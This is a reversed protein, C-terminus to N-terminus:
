WMWESFMPKHNLRQSFYNQFTDYSRTKRTITHIDLGFKKGTQFITKEKWTM